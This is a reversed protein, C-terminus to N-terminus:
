SGITIKYSCSYTEGPDLSVIGKKNKLEGPEGSADAIGQWPEICVFPAENHPKWIGAYPMGAFEVEVFCSHKKSRLAIKNQKLNEFILADKEFLDNNLELTQSAPAIQRKEPMRTGGELEFVTMKEKEGFDLYYDEFQEDEFVPCRFAPHGGISFYMAEKGPNNVQYRVLVSNGALEYSIELHFPFPYIELTSKTSSLTYAHKSAHSESEEFELDRAFGHQSLHFDKGNVYYTDKNVRGVIPFLVPAHRGWFAKDAQWLYEKGNEKSFISVLEAGKDQMKVILTENELQSLM